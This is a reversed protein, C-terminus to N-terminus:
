GNRQIEQRKEHAMKAQGLEYPQATTSENTKTDGALLKIIRRWNRLKEQQGSVPLREWQTQQKSGISFVKACKLSQITAQNM